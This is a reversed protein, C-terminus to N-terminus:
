VITFIWQFLLYELIGPIILLAELFVVDLNLCAIYIVHFGKSLTLLDFLSDPSGTKHTTRIQTSPDELSHILLVKIM